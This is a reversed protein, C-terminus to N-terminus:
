MIDKKVQNVFKVLNPFRNVLEFLIPSLEPYELVNAFFGFASYDVSTMRNNLIFYKKEGLQNSLAKISDHLLETYQERSYSKVGQAVLRQLVKPQIIYDPVFQYIFWPMSDRFYMEKTLMWNDDWREYVLGGYLFNEITHRCTVNQANEAETLGM